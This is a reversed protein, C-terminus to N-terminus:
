REAISASTPHASPQSRPQAPQSQPRLFPVRDDRCLDRVATKGTILGAPLGGGPMVWQGVMLFHHLGPLTNPLQRLGTAPTLLWGEMSGKWNGTYRIVSAPTSVDTVEISAHIGPVIRELVQLVSQAVRQKEARYRVPDTHRLQLWYEFDTTSLFCTVATKGAPAFTPDFHFFRFGLQRLSTSPDVELPQELVRLLFGPQQSLDQAIGFSVQLYSPFPDYDRYVAETTKDIYRGDLLDYLTSHGDAASIVWDAAISEGTALQVGVAASNEVLIKQVRAGLHLHGGLSELRQQIPRIVAQSGGIPYGTNGQSMWALSLFLAIASMQASYGEGFFSRLIPNTFREGYEGATIRTLRLVLPLLPLDRLYAKSNTLFSGAPDPLAFRTLRRLTAAFRLIELTDEPAVRLMESELRDLASYIRLCEGRDSEVRVFEESNVFTLKDIDFLDAWDAHMQGGPNSGLLWHLCTEFTYDGRRWSMALGGAVDNMEFVEAQYGCLQAYVATCLGAIGGGIIAVKKSGSLTM